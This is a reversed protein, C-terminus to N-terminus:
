CEAGLTWAHYQMRTGSVNPTGYSEKYYSKHLTVYWPGFIHHQRISKKVGPYHSRWQSILLPKLEQHGEWPLINHEIIKGPIM